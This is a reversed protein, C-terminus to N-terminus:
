FLALTITQYEETSSLFANFFYSWKNKTGLYCVHKLLKVSSM